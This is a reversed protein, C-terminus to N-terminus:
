EVFSRLSPFQAKNVPSGASDMEIYLMVSYMVHPFYEALRQQVLSRIFLKLSLILITGDTM